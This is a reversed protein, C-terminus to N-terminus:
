FHIVRIPKGPTPNVNEGDASSDLVDVWTDESNSELSHPATSQGDTTYRLTKETGKVCRLSVGSTGTGTGPASSSSTTTVTCSPAVSVSVAFRASATSASAIPAELITGVVTVVLFALPLRRM